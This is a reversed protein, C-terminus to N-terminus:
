KSVDRTDPRPRPQTQSRATNSPRIAPQISTNTKKADIPRTASTGPVRTHSGTTKQQATRSTSRSSAASGTKKLSGTPTRTGSGQPTMMGTEPIQNQRMQALMRQAKLWDNHTAADQLQKMARALLRQSVDDLALFQVHMRKIMGEHQQPDLDHIDVIAGLLTAPPHGEVLPTTFRIFDGVNFQYSSPTEVCGGGLSLDVLRGPRVAGIEKDLQALTYNASAATSIHQFDVEILIGLRVSDRKRVEWANKWIGLRCFPMSGGVIGLVHTNFAMLSPGTEFNGEVRLGPELSGILHPNNAPLSVNLFQMNYNMVLCEYNNEIGEFSVKLITGPKLTADMLDIMAAAAQIDAVNKTQAVLKKLNKEKALANTDKPPPFYFREIRASFLQDFTSELIPKLRSRFTDHVMVAAAPDLKPYNEFVFSLREFDDDTGGRKFLLKKALLLDDRRKQKKAKAQARQYMIFAVVITAVILFLSIMITPSMLVQQPPPLRYQLDMTAALPLGTLPITM